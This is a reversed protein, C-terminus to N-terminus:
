RDPAATQPRSGLGILAITCINHLAHRYSEGGNTSRHKAGSAAQLLVEAVTQLSVNARRLDIEGRAIAADLVQLLRDRFHLEGQGAALEGGAEKAFAKLEAMHSADGWWELATGYNAYLMAVLREALDTDMREASACREAIVARCRAIMTRFVDEKGTFHLYLTAKALGAERAIDDMATRRYGYRVFLARAAEVIQDIRPSTARQADPLSM